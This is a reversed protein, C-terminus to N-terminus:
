PRRGNPTRRRSGATPPSDPGPRRFIRQPCPGSRGPIGPFGRAGPPSGAPRIVFIPEWSGVDRGVGAPEKGPVAHPPGQGGQHVLAPRVEPGRIGLELVGVPASPPKEQHSCRLPAFDHVTFRCSGFRPTLRATAVVWGSGHLAGGAAGLGPPAAHDRGAPRHAAVEM